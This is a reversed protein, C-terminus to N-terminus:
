YYIRENSKALDIIYEKFAIDFDSIYMTRGPNNKFRDRLEFGVHEYYKSKDENKYELTISRINFNSYSLSLYLGGDESLTVSLEPVFKDIIPKYVSNFHKQMMEYAKSRVAKLAAESKLKLVRGKNLEADIEEMMSSAPAELSNIKNYFDQLESLTKQQSETIM